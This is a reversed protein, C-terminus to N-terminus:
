SARTHIAGRKEQPYGAPLSRPQSTRLGGGRPPARPRRSFRDQLPPRPPQQKQIHVQPRPLRLTPSRHRHIYRQFQDRSSRPPNHIPRTTRIQPFDVRLNMVIRICHGHKDVRLM